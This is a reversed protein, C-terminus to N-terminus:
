PDTIDLDARTSATVDHGADRLGVVLDTGLMGNAGTVLWRMGVGKNETGVALTAPPM